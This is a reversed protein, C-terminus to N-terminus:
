KIKYKKLFYIWKKNARKRKKNTRDPSSFLSLFL